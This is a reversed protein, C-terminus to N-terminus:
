QPYENKASCIDTLIILEFILSLTMMEFWYEFGFFFLIPIIIYKGAGLRKRNVWVYGMYLLLFAMGGLVGYEGGIQNYISNPMNIISHESINESFVYLFSYLHYQLFDKSIYIYKSPYAGQMGLGTAKVAQKSSFNGIGAGFLFNNANRTMYYVTQKVTYLKIQSPDMALPTRNYPMGYWNAMLNKLSDQELRLNTNNKSRLTGFSTLYKLEDRYSLLREQSIRVRYYDGRHHMYYAATTDNNDYVFQDRVRPRLKFGKEEEETIAEKKESKQVEANYVTQVYVLNYFSLVPYVIGILLLLLLCNIRVIKKNVFLLLVVLAITLTILALNSTCLLLIFTCMLAWRRENKMLFYIAGIANMTANTVSINATVGKIHDGTSSGYYETYEWYWYPMIQGSQIIMVLLEGLSYVTNILFFVKITALMKEKSVNSAGVFLLWSAVGAMIWNVVSNVYGFWYGQEGFSNHILPAITGLIPMVFYFWSFGTLKQSKYKKYIVYCLYCIVALVKVSFKVYTVGILFLLFPWDAEAYVRKKYGAIANTM